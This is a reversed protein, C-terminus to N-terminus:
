IHVTVDRYRNIGYNNWLIRLTYRTIPVSVKSPDIKINVEKEESPEPPDIPIEGLKIGLAYVILSAKSPKVSGLNRIVCKIKYIGNEKKVEETKLDLFAEPMSTEYLLLSSIIALKPYFRREPRKYNIYVRLKNGKFRLPTEIFINGVNGGLNTHFNAAEVSIDAFRSPVFLRMDLNKVDTKSEPLSVDIGLFDGPEVILAGSLLRASHWSNEIGKYIVTLGVDEFTIPVTASYVINMTHVSGEALKKGLLGGIEYVAKGYIGDEVETAIQPKFERSITVGDLSIILRLPLLAERPVIFGIDLFAKDVSVNPSSLGTSLTISARKLANYGSGLVIKNYAASYRVIGEGSSSGFDAIKGKVM